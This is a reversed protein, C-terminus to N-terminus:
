LLHYTKIHKNDVELPRRLSNKQGKLLSTSNYKYSFDGGGRPNQSKIVKKPQWIPRSSLGIVIAWKNLSNITWHNVQYVQYDWTSKFNRHATWKSTM